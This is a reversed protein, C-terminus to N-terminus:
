ALYEEWQARRPFFIEAFFNGFAALNERVLIEGPSVVHMADNTEDKGDNEGAGREIRCALDRDDVVLESM